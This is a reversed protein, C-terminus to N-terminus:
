EGVVAVVDLPVIVTAEVPASLLVTLTVPVAVAGPGLSVASGVDSLKLVVTPVGTVWVNKSVPLLRDPITFRSADPSPKETLGVAIVLVAAVM